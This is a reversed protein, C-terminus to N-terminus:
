RLQPQPQHTRRLQDVQDAWLPAKAADQDLELQLNTDGLLLQERDRLLRAAMGVGVQHHGVRQLSGVEPGVEAGTLSTVLAEAAGVERGPQDIGHLAQVSLAAMGLTRSPTVPETTAM